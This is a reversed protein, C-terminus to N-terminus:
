RTCTRDLSNQGPKGIMAIMHPWNRASKGTRDHIGTLATMNHSDRGLAVWEIMATETVAISAIKGYNDHL